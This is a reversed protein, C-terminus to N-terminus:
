RLSAPSLLFRTRLFFREGRFEFVVRSERDEPIIPLGDVTRPFFFYVADAAGIGSRETESAPVARDGVVLRARPGSEDNEISGFPDAPMPGPRQGVPAARELAKLTVVYRDAPLRPPSALYQATAKEGLEALRAFADEIPASSEWRVLYIVPNENSIDGPRSRSSGAPSRAGSTICNGHRDMSAPDCRIGNPDYVLGSGPAELPMVLPEQRAWPSDQLLKLTQKLTWESRPKNKWFDDAHLLGAAPILAFFLILARSPLSRQTRPM